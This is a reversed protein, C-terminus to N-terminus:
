GEEGRPGALVVDDNSDVADESDVVFRTADGTRQPLSRAPSQASGKRSLENSSSM